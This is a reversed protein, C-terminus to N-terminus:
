ATCGPANENLQLKRRKPVAEFEDIASLNWICGSACDWGYYWNSAPCSLRRSWIYPAIILGDYDTAVTTWDIGTSLDYVAEPKGPFHWPKSYRETFADIDEASRLWLINADPRLTVRHCVHLSEVAFDEARCWWPWDDDGKVSIWLGHPKSHSCIYNDQKYTRSRDLTIRQDAYKELIPQDTM